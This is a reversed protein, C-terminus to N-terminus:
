IFMEHKLAEFILNEIKESNEGPSFPIKTLWDKKNIEKNSKNTEANPFFVWVGAIPSTTRFKKETVIHDKTKNVFESDFKSYHLLQKYATWDSNYESVRLNGIAEAPRYKFDIIYSAGYKNDDYFDIRTDPRNNPFQSYLPNEYTSLKKDYSIPKDYVLNIVKNDKGQLTITTGEKLLPVNWTDLMESDDYIWGSIPQFGLNPAQLAKLLKIFCWMEYLKDTRKWRFSFDTNLKIKKKMTKLERQIQYLFRYRGDLHMNTSTSSKGKVEKVWETQLFYNFTNSLKKMRQRSDKLTEIQQLYKVKESEPRPYKGGSLRNTDYEIHPLIQETYQIASRTVKHLYKVVDIIVVNEPLNRTVLRKPVLLRTQVDTKKLRYKITEHDIIRAQYTDELQYQNIIKSRPYQKIENVIPIIKNCYKSLILLQNSVSERNDSTTEKAASENNVLMHALNEIMEELEERMLNLENNTVQKPRVNIYTYYKEKGCTVYIQYTGPVFPYYSINSNPATLNKYLVIPEQSEEIYINGKEDELCISSQYYDLTDMYIRARNQPSNFEIIIDINETITIMKQDTVKTSEKSFFTSYDVMEYILSHEESRKNKEQIKFKFPIDM